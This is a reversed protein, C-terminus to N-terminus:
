KKELLNHSPPAVLRVGSSDQLGALRVSIRIVIATISENLFQTQHGNFDCFICDFFCWSDVIGRWRKMPTTIRPRSRWPGAILLSLPDHLHILRQPNFFFDAHFKTYQTAVFLFISAGSLTKSRFNRNPFDNETMKKKM